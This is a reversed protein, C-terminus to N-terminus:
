ALMMGLSCENQVLALYKLNAVPKSIKTSSVKRHIGVMKNEKAASLATKLNAVELKSLQGLNAVVRHAPLGDEKRRYSEVLQAYSYTKKNKKVKSVRLFM